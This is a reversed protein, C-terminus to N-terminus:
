SRVVDILTRERASIETHADTTNGRRRAVQQLIALWRPAHVNLAYEEEVIVRGAQGMRERLARDDILQSLRATWVADGTALYGNVGERIIACNVGVPSAVVPIGASMYLLAKFGCKGRAWPDDPMPMVGIDFRHLQEREEDLHWPVMRVRPVNLPLSGAGIATVDVAPYRSAVTALPGEIVRLYEATTPSGIWGIVVRGNTSAAPRRRFQETDVPTPIVSVQSNYRRAYDALISNGAVVHASLTIIEATKEPSKLARFWANATSVHNLYIADDFDFVFAPCWRAMAREILATGLPLAERHVVVVDARSARLIDGLRKVVAGLAMTAKQPLKGPQYLVRYLARSMFPRVECELGARRLWPLYQLVRFRGSAAEEPHPIIFLVRM